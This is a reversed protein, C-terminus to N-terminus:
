DPVGFGYGLALGLLFAVAGVAWVPVAQGEPQDGAGLPRRPVPRIPPRLRASALSIEPAMTAVLM